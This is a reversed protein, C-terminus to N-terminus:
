VLPLGSTVGLMCKKFEQLPNACSNTSYGDGGNQISSSLLTILDAISAKLFINVGRVTVMRKINAKEKQDQICRM